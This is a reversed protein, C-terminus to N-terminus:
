QVVETRLLDIGDQANMRREVESTAYSVFILTSHLPFEPASLIGKDNAFNSEITIELRGSGRHSFYEGGRFSSEKSKFEVELAGSTFREAESLDDGHLGHLHFRDSM